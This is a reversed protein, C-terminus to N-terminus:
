DRLVDVAVSLAQADPSSPVLNAGNSLPAARAALLWDAGCLRGASARLKDLVLLLRKASIHDILRSLPWLGSEDRLGVGTMVAKPVLNRDTLGGLEV